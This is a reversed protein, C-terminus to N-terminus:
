FGRGWYGCWRSVNAVIAEDYGKWDAYKPVRVEREAEDFCKGAYAAKKVEGSLEDLYALFEEVDKRTGLRGVYTHGAILRDWDMALVRRLSEEWEVPYADAFARPNLAHIPIFDVAYLVKEKPLRMVLTSDSHNRGVYTLELVTGGLSITRKDDVVEDPIVVDPHKMKLLREKANRHAIFTAGLEKFPKGGAVHDFHHHSYIVYRIPAATVKRIEEIYTKVVEPKGLGIPDTAIVGASTTVFMSQTRGYRFIYVDDTGEVKTTAYPPLHNAQASAVLMACSALGFAVLRLSWSM